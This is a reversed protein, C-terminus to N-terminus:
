GRHSVSPEMKGPIGDDFRGSPTTELTKWGSKRAAADGTAIALAADPRAMRERLTVPGCAIM